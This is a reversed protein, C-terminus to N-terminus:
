MYPVRNVTEVASPRVASSCRVAPLPRGFQMANDAFSFQNKEPTSTPTVFSPPHISTSMAFQPTLIRSGLFTKRVIPTSESRIMTQHLPRVDTTIQRVQQNQFQFGDTLPDDYPNRTRVSTLHPSQRSSTIKVDPYVIAKRTVTPLQSVVRTVRTQEGPLIYNKNEGVWTSRNEIQVTGYKELSTVRKMLGSIVADKEQCMRCFIVENKRSNLQASLDGVRAELIHIEKVKERLLNELQANAPAQIPM